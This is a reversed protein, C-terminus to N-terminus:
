LETWKARAQGVLDDVRQQVRQSEPPLKQGNVEDLPRYTRERGAFLQDKQVLKYLETVQKEADGKRATVIANIQNLKPVPSRREDATVFV